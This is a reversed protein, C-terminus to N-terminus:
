INMTGEEYPELSQKQDPDVLRVEAVAGAPLTIWQLSNRLNIEADSVEILTGTYRVGNAIAIVEKGIMGQIDRM